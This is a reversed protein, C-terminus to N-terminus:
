AVGLPAKFNATLFAEDVPHRAEHNESVKRWYGISEEGLNWTLFIPENEYFSPFDIHGQEPNRCLCGVQRLEDFHYKIKRLKNEVEKYFGESPNQHINILELLVKQIDEMVPRVFVLTRNAEQVTFTKGM